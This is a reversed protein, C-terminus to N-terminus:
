SLRVVALSAGNGSQLVAAGLLGFLQLQLADGASLTAILTASYATTSIAPSVISGAMPSGNLLIRSSMLLAVTTKVSYTLLYTGTVPVTFITNAGNATFGDLVQVDPLPVATGGLIVAIITGSTNLASMSNTTVSTGTAGTAGTAGHIILFGVIM